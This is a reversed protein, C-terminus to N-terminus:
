SQDCRYTSVFVCKEAQAKWSPEGYDLYWQDMLAVVCEDASRSIVLGEPEAYAIALSQAIMSERVKNKAEQVPEGKFEGVLMTGNYFGEKYAIEKAEALPKADKPSNIKLKKILAPATMEGYTPTSIVPVPDIAVWSPDIKYYEAKKRLDMLTAYDDPSDSPVSTVVGTGKTALVTEMPLVYVEPNVALPAHVKTGILKSGDIELLQHVQGRTSFTGQFAMNRAARYTCVIAERESVAFIGYKLTPSVFCNTQGYMTEPRLTAAVLFIKRGGVKSEIEAKVTDSWQVVAMKVGTYEQPGLAEGEARDHDMCPQGDKPSYITYREGFKIKGMSYLKNTQWRVFADYYPNKDTTLFSRRWDIRSGFAAHDDMCIPPFYDLWYYPDAFQKIESRPVGISDMIQFQYQLGTAKAAIKGKKAKDVRNTTPDDETTTPASHPHPHAAEDQADFKEFEPGFM